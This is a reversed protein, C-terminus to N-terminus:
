CWTVLTQSRPAVNLKGFTMGVFVSLFRWVMTPSLVILAMGTEGVDVISLQNILASANVLKPCFFNMQDHQHSNAKSRTPLNVKHKASRLVDEDGLHLIITSLSSSSSTSPLKLLLKSQPVWDCNM